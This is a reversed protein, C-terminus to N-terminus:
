AAIKSELADLGMAARLRAVEAQPFRRYGSPLKVHQVIGKDAWQRLTNPHIGLEAAAESISLLGKDQM